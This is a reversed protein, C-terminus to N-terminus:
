AESTVARYAGPRLAAGSGTEDLAIIALDEDVLDRPAHHAYNPTAGACWRAIDQLRAFEALCSAAATQRDPTFFPTSM